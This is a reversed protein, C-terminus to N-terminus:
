AVGRNLVVDLNSYRGFRRTSRLAVVMSQFPGACPCERKFVLREHKYLTLLFVRALHVIASPLFSVHSVIDHLIRLDLPSACVASLSGPTRAVAVNFALLAGHLCYGLHEPHEPAPYVSTTGCQSM